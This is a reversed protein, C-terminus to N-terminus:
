NKDRGRGGGRERGECEKSDVDEEVRGGGWSCDTGGLCSFDSGDSGATFGKPAKIM